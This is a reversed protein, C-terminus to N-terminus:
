EQEKLAKLRSYLLDPNTINELAFQLAKAQQGLNNIEQSEQVETALKNMYETREQLASVLKQIHAELAMIKERVQMDTMQAPNNM